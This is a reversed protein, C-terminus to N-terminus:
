PRDGVDGFLQHRLERGAGPVDVLRGVRQNSGVHGLVAPARRRRGDHFQAGLGRERGARVLLDSGQRFQGFMPAGAGALLEARVGGRPRPGDRRPLPLQQQPSIIHRQIQDPLHPPRHNLHNTLLTRRPPAPVQHGFGRALRHPPPEGGDLVAFDDGGHNSVGGFLRGQAQGWGLEHGTRHLEATGIAGRHKPGLVRGLEGGVGEERCLVAEQLPGAGGGARADVESDDLGDRALRVGLPPHETGVLCSSQRRDRHRAPHHIHQHPRRPGPLRGRHVGQAPRPFGLMTGPRHHPQCRRRHRRLHQGVIQANLRLVRRLPPGGVLVGARGELGPLEDDDVFGGEGAGQGQIPDRLCGLFRPRLHQQDAVVCLELGDVSATREAQQDVVAVISGFQDIDVSEGVDPLLGRGQLQPMAAGRDDVGVEVVVADMVTVGLGHGIGGVGGPVSVSLLTQRRHQDGFGALVDGGEVDAGAGIEDKVARQLRAGFDGQGVSRCRAHPVRDDGAAVVPPQPVPM